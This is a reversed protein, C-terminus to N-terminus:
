ETDEKKNDIEYCGELYGTFSLMSEILMEAFEHNFNGPEPICTYIISYLDPYEPEKLQYDPFLWEDDDRKWSEHTEIQFEKLIEELWIVRYGKPFEYEVVKPKDM